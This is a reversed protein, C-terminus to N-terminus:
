LIEKLKAELLVEVNQRLVEDELHSMVEGSYARTLIVKAEDKPIGRAMLYFLSEDDLQGVTAGHSCKVDDAWIKLQPRSNSEADESCLISSNSQYANTKQAEQRVIITGSFVGKSQKGYIGKYLEHSECNPKVHDIVTYNDVIQNGSIANAGILWNEANEGNITSYIENRAVQSGFNLAVTKCISRDAQEILITSAHISKNENQIKYHNVVADEDASITLVHNVFYSSERISSFSECINLVSSKSAHVNIRPCAYDLYSKDSEGEEDAYIHILEVSLDKNEPVTVNILQSFTSDSLVKLGSSLGESTKNTEYFNEGLEQSGESIQVNESSLTSLNADFKGNILVIKQDFSSISSASDLKVSKGMRKLPKLYSQFNLYKFDENKTTLPKIKDLLLFSKKRFEKLKPSDFQSTINGCIAALSQTAQGNLAQSNSKINEETVM